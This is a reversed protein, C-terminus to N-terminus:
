FHFYTILIYQINCVRGLTDCTGLQDLNGFLIHGAMLPKSHRVNIYIYVYAGVRTVWKTNHPLCEAKRQNVVSSYFSWFM